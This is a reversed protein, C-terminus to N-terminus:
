AGPKRDAGALLREGARLLGFSFALLGLALAGRAVVIAVAIAPSPADPSGRLGVVLATLAFVLASGITFMGIRRGAAEETSTPSMTSAILARWWSTRPLARPAESPYLPGAAPSASTPYSQRPPPVLVQPSSPAHPRPVSPLGAHRAGLGVHRVDPDHSQLRSTALHDEAEGHVPQPIERSSDDDVLNMLGENM